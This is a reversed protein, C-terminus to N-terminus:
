VDNSVFNDFSVGLAKDAEIGEINIERHALNILCKPHKQSLPKDLILRM